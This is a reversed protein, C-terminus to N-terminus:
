TRWKNYLMRVGFAFIDQDWPTARRLEYTDTQDDNTGALTTVAYRYGTEQLLMKTEHDFDVATGNPYAFGSVSTGIESEIKAKSELLERRAHSSDVRVLIPHTATHSGFDIGARNMVRVEDWSLMLGPAPRVPGVRLSERLRSVWTGREGEPLTRLFSLVTQQVRLRHSLTDLPGGISRPGFSELALTSTERFASFVEDHWLPKASGIASTALFITAPVSHRQLIPFAHVFNDRYGDDLTVAVANAPLTGTQLREVLESLTLVHFRSAIYAMQRDFLATPTGPFYPDGEDNVRHYFLIQANRAARAVLRPLRARGPPAPMVRTRDVLPRALAVVGSWHLVRSAAEVFRTRFPPREHGM